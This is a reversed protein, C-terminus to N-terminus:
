RGGGADKTRNEVIPVLPGDTTLLALYQELRDPGLAQVFEVLGRRDDPDRSVVDNVFDLTASTLVPGLLAAPMNLDKLLETLRLNLDPFASAMMASNQRGAFTEWPSREVQLCLCGLRSGAPAGWAHLTEIQTRDLGLWLLESPSLFASLRAPENAVVWQLLTRRLASLGAADAISSADAPAQLAALRARGEAMAAVITDRDADALARPEVLAVADIFARRDADALTPKRPPPKNSLRVLSFDALGVDLGLIAGSVRWRTGIDSGAVPFRWAVARGITSRLGFDHRGAADPASISVGDREGLAAAYALEILGRGLLDDALVRLSPALRAGARVDGDAAARQLATMVERSRDLLPTPSDEGGDAPKAQVVHALGKVQDRLRDRTLGAAALADAAEVVSAASSLYSRPAEEFTKSLRIAEARPLDVRYRTGEWSVSTPEPSSPGALVGLVAQERPGVSDFLEAVSPSPAAATSGRDIWDTLWRVLRGEYDGHASVPVASLSIVLDSASKGELSGRTAARTVLALAGQFQALARFARGDDDIASIEAARRAASAYARLDGVRARELAASLAPFVSAARVADIADRVNEPTLRGIRRSAFLVMVYRRRYDIEIGKFVQDCLWSFDPPDDRDLGARVDNRLPKPRGDESEDFVVNWFARTGPVRPRGNEDTNLSMALLAPDLAPRTFVRQEVLRGNSVRQFVAYLRRASEVRTPVNVSDLNLAVRIEPPTLQSMAGVFQALRGEGSGVLARLFDAPPGPRRDALSQWIPEADPGGPLRLSGSAIRLGPAAAVFAPAHKAALESLLDPQTSLWARTEDDLTLLGYYLLAANRSQLIATLLTQPTARGGFVADIWLKDSLPLPLTDSSGLGAASGNLQALLARLAHERPDGKLRLPTDFTRRIFEVLFQARDAAVKDGIAGVAARLGGPVSVESVTGRQDAGRARSSGVLVIVGISFAHVAALRRIRVV